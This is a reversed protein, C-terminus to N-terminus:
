GHGHLVVRRVAPARGDAATRPGIGTRGASAARAPPAAQRLCEGTITRTRSM